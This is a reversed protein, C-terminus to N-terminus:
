SEALAKPPGLIVSAIIASRQSSRERLLELARTVDPSVVRINRVDGRHRTVQAQVQEMRESVQTDISRGRLFAQASEAMTPMKVPLGVNEEEGELPIPISSRALYPQPAAPRPAVPRPQAPLPPPAAIIVPPPPAAPSEEGQLLRRLEEEWNNAPSPRPQPAAGPRPTRPRNSPEPSDGDESEPEGGQKKKWWSHLASLVAIVVLILLQEM